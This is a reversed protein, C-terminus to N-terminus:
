GWRGTEGATGARTGPHKSPQFGLRECLRRLFRKAPHPHPIWPNHKSLDWGGRLRGWLLSPDNPWPATPRRVRIEEWFDTYKHLMGEITFGAGTRKAAGQLRPLDSRQIQGLVEAFAENDGLRCIFGNQGHCIVQRAICAVDSCVPVCGAGMAELVTMPGTEYDSVNLMVDHELYKLRVQDPPLFGHFTVQGTLGLSHFAEELYAREPGEGVISVRFPVQRRALAAFVPPLDRVRKQAQELRGVYLVRLVGDRDDKRTGESAPVGYPIYRIAAPDFKPFQRRFRDVVHESKGVMGDLFRLYPTRNAVYSGPAQDTHMTDIIHCVRRLRRLLPVCGLAFAACDNIMLLNPRIRGLDSLITQCAGPMDGGNGDFPPSFSTWDILEVREPDFLPRMPGVQSTVSAIWLRFGRERAGTSFNALFTALGGLEFPAYWVFFVRLPENLSNM